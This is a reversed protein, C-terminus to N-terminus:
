SSSFGLSTIGAGIPLSGLIKVSQLSILVWCYEGLKWVTTGDSSPTSVALIKFTASQPDNRSPLIIIVPKADLNEV